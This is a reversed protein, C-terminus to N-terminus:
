YPQLMDLTIETNGPAGGTNAAPCGSNPGAAGLFAATWDVTLNGPLYVNPSPQALCIGNNDVECFGPNGNSSGDNHLALDIWFDAKGGNPNTPVKEVAGTSHASGTRNGGEKFWANPDLEREFHASGDPGTMIVNPLGGAPVSLAIDFFEGDPAYSNWVSFMLDPPCSAMDVTILYNKKGSPPNKYIALNATCKKWEGVTIQHGNATEISSVNNAFWHAPVAPNFGLPEGTGMFLPTSDPIAPDLKCGIGPDVPIFDNGADPTPMPNKMYTLGWYLAIPTQAVLDGKKPGATPVCTNTASSFMTGTGCASAAVVCSTGSLTTNTGCTVNTGGGDNTCTTPNSTCSSFTLATVGLGALATAALIGQLRKM